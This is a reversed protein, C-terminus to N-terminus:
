LIYIFYSMFAGSKMILSCVTQIKEFVIKKSLTTFVHCKEFNTVRNRYGICNSTHKSINQLFNYLM